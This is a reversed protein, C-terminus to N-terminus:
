QRCQCHLLASPLLAGPHQAKSRRHIHILFSASPTRLFRPCVHVRSIGPLTGRHCMLPSRKRPHIGLISLIVIVKWERYDDGQEWCNEESVVRRGLITAVHRNGRFYDVSVVRRGLFTALYRIGKCFYDGSAVRRRLLAALAGIGFFSMFRGGVAGGGWSPLWIDSGVATESKLSAKKSVSAECVGGEECLELGLSVSDEVWM